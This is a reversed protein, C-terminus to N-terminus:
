NESQRRKGSFSSGYAQCIVIDLCLCHWFTNLTHLRLDNTIETINTNLLGSNSNRIGNMKARATETETEKNCEEPATKLIGQTCQVRACQVSCMCIM